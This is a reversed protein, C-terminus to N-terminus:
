IGYKHVIDSASTKKIIVNKVKRAYNRTNLGLEHTYYVDGIM